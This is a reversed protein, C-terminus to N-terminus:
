VDHAIVIEEAEGCHQDRHETGDDGVLNHFGTQRGEAAMYQGFLIIGQGRDGIQFFLAQPPGTDDHHDIKQQNHGKAEGGAREEAILGTFQQALSGGKHVADHDQDGQQEEQGAHGKAAGDAGEGVVMGDAIGHALGHGGM